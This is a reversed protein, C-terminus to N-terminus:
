KLGLQQFQAIQTAFRSELGWLGKIRWRGKELAAEISYQRSITSCRITVFKGDESFQTGQVSLAERPGQSIIFRFAAHMKALDDANRYTEANQQMGLWALANRNEQAWKRDQETFMALLENWTLPDPRTPSPPMYPLVMRMYEPILLEPRQAYEPAPQRRILVFYGAAIVAVIPILWGLFRVSKKLVLGLFAIVKKLVIKGRESLSRRSNAPLIM